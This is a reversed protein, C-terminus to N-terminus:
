RPADPYGGRESHLALGLALWRLAPAWRLGRREALVSALFLVAIVFPAHFLNHSVIWLPNNFYLAHYSDMLGDAGPGRLGAGAPPGGLFPMGAM